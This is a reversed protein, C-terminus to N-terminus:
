APKPTLRRLDELTNVNFFPAASPADVVTVDLAAAIAAFGPNGAELLRRLTPEAKTHWFGALPQLRGGARWLVADQGALLPRLGDVVEASLLPLDCAAVFVWGPPAHVLAAHVGGPAGKGPVVDPVVRLGFRAYPAGDDAVLFAGPLLRLLRALIPEGDVEVLGKAVGGLRRGRGGAVIAASM